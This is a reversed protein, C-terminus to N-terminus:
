ISIEEDSVPYKRMPLVKGKYKMLTEKINEEVLRSGSGYFELKEDGKKAVDIKVGNTLARSRDRTHYNHPAFMVSSASTTMLTNPIDGSHPIHHVGINFWVVLDEDAINEGDLFSSFNILPDDPTLANVPSGSRPESDKQKTIYLNHETWRASQLLSSSNQVTLHVPSGVGTGPMIRYGRNEGYANQAHPNTVVYMKAGNAPWNLSADDENKIQSRSLVMTNRPGVSWPYEVAASDLSIVSMTNQQGAIDIDAKFNIIHDHISSSLFNHVKYGYRKNNAYYGGQIYGSARVKVEITGDLYFIYDILYDYNGIVAISRVILVSNTFSTVWSGRSHRQIPHDSPAEFICVTRSNMQTREMRHHKSDLFIAYSPCDYGPVLESLDAGLGYLTDLFSTSSQIPDNGAYHAVAEQLSLEYMIREGDLRIDFLAIANVQSFAMNFTFGMWSVFSENRDVHVRGEGSQHFVPAPATSYEETMPDPEIRTWSGDLNGPLKEFDPSQWARRLDNVTNYVIDNYLWQVIHWETPNRSTVDVKFYLGQPLLTNASSTQSFSLWQLRRGNEFWIQDNSSAVFNQIPVQDPNLDYNQFLDSTIDEVSDTINQFWDQLATVDPIYSLTSSRGSNYPFALERITTSSSIPLPGVVYEDISAQEISNRKITVRAYRHPPAASADLFAVADTKNPRLLETVFIFDDKFTADQVATLGLHQSPSHLWSIISITEEDSLDEWINARAKLGKSGYQAPPISGLIIPPRNFTLKLHYLFLAVTSLTLLSLFSFKLAMAFRVFPKLYSQLVAFVSNPQSIQQM